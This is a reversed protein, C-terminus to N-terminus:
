SQFTPGSENPNLTESQSPHIKLRIVDFSISFNKRISESQRPFLNPSLGSQNLIFKLEFSKGSYSLGFREISKLVQIVREM